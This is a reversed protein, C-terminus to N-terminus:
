RPAPTAPKRGSVAYLLTGGATTFTGARIEAAVRENEEMREAWCADFSAPDGGGAVFYRYTEERPWPGMGGEARQLEGAARTRQEASAYPPVLAGAKDGIAVEIGEVGLGALVAPVREGFSNHGLGLSAKGAECTFYFRLRSLRREITEGALASSSALQNAGNNPEVVLLVAGPRAVRLMERVVAEPEPVHILVTQCTVLDFAADPFPLREATGKVFRLRGPAGDLAAAGNVWADEPDVGTVVADDPLVRAITRTWHGLGSGVDLARRVRRLGLRQALLALYDANWWSEREPGLWDASHPATAPAPPRRRDPM